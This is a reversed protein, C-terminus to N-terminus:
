FCRAITKIAARRNFPAVGALCLRRQAGNTDSLHRTRTGSSARSSRTRIPRARPASRAPWNTLATPRLRRARWRALRSWAGRATLFRLDDYRVAIADFHEMALQVFATRAKDRDGGGLFQIALIAAEDLISGARVEVFADIDSLPVLRMTTDGAPAPQEKDNENM